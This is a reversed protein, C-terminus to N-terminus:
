FRFLVFDTVSLVKIICIYVISPNSYAPFEKLIDITTNNKIFTLRYNLTELWLQKFHQDDSLGNPFDRKMVEAKEEMHQM